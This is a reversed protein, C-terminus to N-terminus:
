QHSKSEGTHLAQDFAESSVPPVAYLTSAVLLSLPVAPMVLALLGAANALAAASDFIQASLLLTFVGILLSAELIFVLGSVVLRHTSSGGVGISLAVALSIIGLWLLHVNSTVLTLIASVPITQNSLLSFSSGIVHAVFRQLPLGPLVSLLAAGALALTLRGLFAINRLPSM